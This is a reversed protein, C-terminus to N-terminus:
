SSCISPTEDTVAVPRRSRSIQTSISGLRSYPNFTERSRTSARNRCRSTLTGAPEKCVSRPSARNRVLPVVESALRTSDTATRMSSPPWYMRTASRPLTLSVNSSATVRACALPCCAMLRRTMLCSVPSVMSITLSTRAITASIVLDTGSPILKTSSFSLLTSIRFRNRVIYWLPMQPSASTNSTSLMNRLGRTAAIVANPRGKAIEPPSIM